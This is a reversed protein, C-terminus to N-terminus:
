IFLYFKYKDCKNMTAISLKTVVSKNTVNMQEIILLLEKENSFNQNNCFDKFITDNFNPRRCKSNISYFQVYKNKYNEFISEIINKRIVLQSSEDLNDLIDIYIDPIPSNQNILKFKCAIEKDLTEPDKCKYIYCCVKMNIGFKTYLLILSERRHCGDFTILKNKTGDWFFHLVTDLVAKDKITTMISKIKETDLSRNYKWQRTYQELISSDFVCMYEELNEKLILSHNEVLDAISM